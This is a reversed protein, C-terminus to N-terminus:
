QVPLMLRYRQHRFLLIVAATTIGTARDVVLACQRQTIGAVHFEGPTTARGPLTQRHLVGFAPKILQPGDDRQRLAVGPVDSIM